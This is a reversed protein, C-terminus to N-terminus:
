ICMHLWGTPRSTHNKTAGMTLKRVEHTRVAFARALNRLHGLEGSGKSNVWTILVMIEHAPEAIIYKPKGLNNFEFINSKRLSVRNKKYVYPAVKQFVRPIEEGTDNNIVRLMCTNIPVYLKPVALMEESVHFVERSFFKGISKILRTVLFDTKPTQLWTLCLGAQGAM